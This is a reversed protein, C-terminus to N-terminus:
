RSGLTMVAEWVGAVVVHCDCGINLSHGTKDVVQTRTAEQAASSSTVRSHLSHMWIHDQQRGSETV